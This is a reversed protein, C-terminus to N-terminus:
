MSLVAFLSSNKWVEFTTSGDAVAALLASKEAAIILPDGPVMMDCGAYMKGSSNLVVAARSHDKHNMNNRQNECAKLAADILEELITM